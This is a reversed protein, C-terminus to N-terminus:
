RQPPGSGLATGAGKTLRHGTITCPVPAYPPCPYCYIKDLQKVLRAASHEVMLKGPGADTADGCAGPLSLDQAKGASALSVWPPLIEYDSEVDLSSPRFNTLEKRRL